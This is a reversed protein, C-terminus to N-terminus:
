FQNLTIQLIRDRYILNGVKLNLKIAKKYAYLYIEQEPTQQNFIFYYTGNDEYSEILSKM